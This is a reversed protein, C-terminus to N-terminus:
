WGSRNVCEDVHRCHERYTFGPCTCIVSGDTLKSTFYTVDPNTRSVFSRKMVSKLTSISDAVVEDFQELLQNQLDIIRADNVEICREHDTTASQINDIMFLLGEAETRTMKPM